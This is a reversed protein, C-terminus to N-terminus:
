RSSRRTCRRSRRRIPARRGGGLLPRALLRVYWNSVDDVFGILTRVGATADYSEWAQPVADVTADLRRLLWRDVLPRESAPRHRGPRGTGPTSRSSATPTACRTSSAAAVEPIARQDFRRPLWVQSSAVLYLRVTDAGFDGIVEWPDVVNGRSKSM